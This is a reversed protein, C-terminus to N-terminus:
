LSSSGSVKKYFLLGNKWSYPHGPNTSALRSVNIMYPDSALHSKIQDWLSTHPLYLSNLSPSGSIRSLADVVKNEKGPKYIIEYDYGLLKSVWNQQEPTVVRQEVMYKLSRQDTQIFFKRGLLYPRWTRIAQLIVLM